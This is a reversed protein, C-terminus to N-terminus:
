LGAGGRVGLRDAHGRQRGERGVGVGGGQRVGEVEEMRDGAHSRSKERPKRKRLAALKRPGGEAWM